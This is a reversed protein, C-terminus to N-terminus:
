ESHIDDFEGNIVDIHVLQDQEWPIAYGIACASQQEGLYDDAHVELFCPQLFDWLNAATLSVEEPVVECELLFEVLAPTAQERIKRANQLVRPFAAAQAASPGGATGHIRLSFGRGLPPLDIEGEWVKSQGETRLTGFPPAALTRTFMGM